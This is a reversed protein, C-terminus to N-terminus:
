AGRLPLGARALERRMSDTPLAGGARATRDRNARSVAAGWDGRAQPVAGPDNPQLGARALERSMSARGAGSDCDRPSRGVRALAEGWGSRGGTQGARLEALATLRDTGAAIFGAALGPQGALACMETIAREDAARALAQQHTQSM